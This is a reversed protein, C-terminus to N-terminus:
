IDAYVSIEAIKGLFQARFINQNGRSGKGGPWL